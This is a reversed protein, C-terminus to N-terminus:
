RGCPDFVAPLPPLGVGQRQRRLWRYRVQQSVLRPRLRAFYRRLRLNQHAVQLGHLKVLPRFQGGPLLTLPM